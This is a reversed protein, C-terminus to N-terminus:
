RKRYVWGIIVLPIFLLWLWRRISHRTATNRSDSQIRSDMTGLSDYGMDLKGSMIEVGKQEIYALKGARGWLGEDPHFYFSSDSLFTWYRSTSDRGVYRMWLVSAAVKREIQLDHAINQRSEKSTRCSLLCLILTLFSIFVRNIYVVM